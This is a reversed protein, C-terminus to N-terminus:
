QDAPMVFAAVRGAPALGSKMSSSRRPVAPWDKRVAFVAAILSPNELMNASSIKSM